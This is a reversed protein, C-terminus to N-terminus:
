NRANAVVLKCDIQSAGYYTLLVTKLENGNQTYIERQYESKMKTSFKIYLPRLLQRVFCCNLSRALYASINLFIYRVCMYVSFNRICLRVPMISFKRKSLNLDFVFLCINVFFM